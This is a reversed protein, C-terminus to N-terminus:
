NLMFCLGGGALAGVVTAVIAILLERKLKLNNERKLREECDILGAKKRRINIIKERMTEIVEAYDEMLTVTGANGVDKKNRIEAIRKSTEEIAPAIESYYEPAVEAICSHSFGDFEEAVSERLNMSLWDTIDFYARYFHGTAKKLNENIYTEPDDPVTLGTEAAIVRSMHDFGRNIEFVPQLFDMFGPTTEEALIYMGKVRIYLEVAKRQLEKNM